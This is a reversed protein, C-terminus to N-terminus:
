PDCEAFVGWSHRGNLGGLSMDARVWVKIKEGHECRLRLARRPRCTTNSRKVIVFQPPLKIVAAESRAGAPLLQGDGHLEDLDAVLKWLRRKVSCSRWVSFADDEM